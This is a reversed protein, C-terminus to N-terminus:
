GFQVLIKIVRSRKALLAIGINRKIFHLTIAIFKKDVRAIQRLTFGFAPTPRRKTKKRNDVFLKGM